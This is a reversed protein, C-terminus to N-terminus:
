RGAAMPTALAPLAMPTHLKDVGILSLIMLLLLLLTKVTRM